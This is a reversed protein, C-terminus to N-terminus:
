WNRWTGDLIPGIILALLRLQLEEVVRRESTIVKIQSKRKGLDIAAFNTM